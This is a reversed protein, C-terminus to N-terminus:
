PLDDLRAFGASWVFERRGREPKASGPWLDTGTEAVVDFTQDFGDGEGKSACAEGSTEIRFVFQAQAARAGFSFGAQILQSFLESQLPPNTITCAVLTWAEVSSSAHLL